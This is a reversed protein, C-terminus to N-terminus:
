KCNNIQEQQEPTILPFRKFKSVGLSQYVWDKYYFNFSDTSKTFPVFYKFDTLDKSRGMKLKAIMIEKWLKFYNEHEEQNPELRVFHDVIYGTGEIWDGKEHKINTTTGDNNTVEHTGNSEYFEGDVVGTVTFSEYSGHESGYFGQLLQYSPYQSKFNSFWHLDEIIELTKKGSAQLNGGQRKKIERLIEQNVPADSTEFPVVFDLDHLNEELTRYVTGAKRLALSGTLVMGNDQHYEVIEKAKKDSAITNEYYKQVQGEELEYNLIDYEQTLVEHAIQTVINKAIKQSEEKSNQIVGLKQFFNRIARALKAFFTFDEQTWKRDTVNEFEIPNKDYEVITEALYDVIVKDRVANIWDKRNKIFGTQNFLEKKYFDFKEKYKDWANVRYRLESIVKNNQKGLMRFAFFATSKDLSEGKELAIFKSLLDIMQTSDHGLADKISDYDAVEVNWDKLFGEKLKKNLVDPTEKLLDSPIEGDYKDWYFYALDPHNAELQKWEPLNINPCTLAM